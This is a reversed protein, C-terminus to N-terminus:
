RTPSTTASTPPARSSSTTCSPAPGTPARRAHLVRICRPLPGTSTSSRPASCRSTASGSSAPRPPRPVDLPHRRHGTFLVSILDDHDLGNREFLAASCRRSGSTSRTPRTTTSRPPAACPESPCRPSPVPSARPRSRTRKGATLPDDHGGRAGAGRRRHALRWAGPTSRATPSRGSARGCWASCRTASPRACGGCRATAARTSPSACCARRRAPQGQGARHHRRRARRGRAAPAARGAGARGDM